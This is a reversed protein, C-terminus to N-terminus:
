DGVRGYIFFEGVMEKKIGSSLTGNANDVCGEIEVLVIGNIGDDVGKIEVGVIEVRNPLKVLKPGTPYISLVVLTGICHFSLQYFHVAAGDM